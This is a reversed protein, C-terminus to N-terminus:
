RIEKKHVNKEEIAGDSNPQLQTLLELLPNGHKNRPKEKVDGHSSHQPKSISSMMWFGVSCAQAVVDGLGAGTHMHLRAVLELM